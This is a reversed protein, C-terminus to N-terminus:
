IRKQYLGACLWDSYSSENLSASYSDISSVSASTTYYVTTYYVVPLINCYFYFLKRKIKNEKINKLNANPKYLNSKLIQGFNAQKTNFAYVKWKSNSPCLMKSGGTVGFKAWHGAGYFILDVLPYKLLLVLM